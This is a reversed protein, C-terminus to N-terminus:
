KKKARNRAASPNKYKEQMADVFNKASMRGTAEPNALGTKRNKVVVSSDKVGFEKNTKDQNARTAKKYMKDVKYARVTDKVKKIQKKYNAM